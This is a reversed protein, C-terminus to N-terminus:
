YDIPTGGFFERPLEIKIAENEEGHATGWFAWFASAAICLNRLTLKSFM